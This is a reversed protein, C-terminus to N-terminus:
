SGSFPPHTDKFSPECNSGGRVARVFAKKWHRIQRNDYSPKLSCITNMRLRRSPCLVIIM